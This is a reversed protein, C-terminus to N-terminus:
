PIADIINQVMGVFRELRSKTKRNQVFFDFTKALFFFFFGSFISEVQSPLPGKPTASSLVDM